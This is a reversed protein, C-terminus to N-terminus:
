AYAQTFVVEIEKINNRLMKKAKSLQSKSAGQSIGLEEAIEKHSYGDIVFMNFVTRYGKPLSQISKTLDQLNLNELAKAQGKFSNRFELVNDMFDLFTNKRLHQLCTNILVRKAWSLFPGKESDFQHVDKYVKVFADQVIDEADEKSKVYRLATLIFFRSYHTYLEKFASQDNALIRNVLLIDRESHHM